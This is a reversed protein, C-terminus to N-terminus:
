IKDNIICPYISISNICYTIGHLRTPKIAPCEFFSTKTLFKSPSPRNAKIPSLMPDRKLSSTILTQTSFFMQNMVNTGLEVCKHWDRSRSKATNPGKFLHQLANSWSHCLSDCLFSVSGLCCKGRRKFRKNISILSSFKTLQKQPLPIQGRFSSSMSLLIFVSSSEIVSLASLNRLPLTTFTKCSFKPTPLSGGFFTDFFLPLFIFGPSIITVKSSFLSFSFM